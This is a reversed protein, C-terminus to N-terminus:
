FKVCFEKLDAVVNNIRSEEAAFAMMHSQVSVQASTLAEGDKSQVLKVFDDMLGTDGGGHGGAVVKPNIVM